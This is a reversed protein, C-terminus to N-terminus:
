RRFPRPNAAQIETMRSELCLAARTYVYGPVSGQLSAAACSARVSEPVIPWMLKVWDYSSQEDDVCLQTAAPNHIRAANAACGANVDVRPLPTAALAAALALAIM